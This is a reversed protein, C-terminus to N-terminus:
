RLVRGGDTVTGGLGERKRRKYDYVRLLPLPNVVFSPCAASCADPSTAHRSLIRASRVSRSPVGGTTTTPKHLLIQLFGLLFVCYVSYLLDYRINNHKASPGCFRPYVTLHMPSQTHSVLRNGSDEVIM